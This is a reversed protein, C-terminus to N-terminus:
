KVDCQVKFSMGSGAPLNPLAVDSTLVQSLDPCTTGTATCSNSVVACNQLNAGPTDRVVANNAAGPGDNHLQVTYTTKTGSVLTTAQNSKRIWLGAETSENTFTCTINSGWTTAAADLTVSGGNAGNNAIAPTATGGSGMGTCNIAGLRFDATAQETVVTETNAATLTHTAGVKGTGGAATTTITETPVGNTGNFIFAGAKGNSIKTLTLKAPPCVATGFQFDDATITDTPSSPFGIQQNRTRDYLYVRLYYTQNPKLLPYLTNNNPFRDWTWAGGNPATVQAEQVLTWPNSFSADTSALVAYKYTSGGYGILYTKKFFTGAALNSKTTFSVQFYDNNQIAQQLTSGAGSVGGYLYRTPRPSSPEEHPVLGAGITQVGGKGNVVAQNAGDAGTPSGDDHYWNSDSWGPGNTYGDQKDTMMPHNLFWGADFQGDMAEALSTPCFETAQAHAPTVTIFGALLTCAALMTKGAAALGNHVEM